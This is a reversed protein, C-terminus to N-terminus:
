VFCPTIGIMKMVQCKRDPNELEGLVFSSREKLSNDDNWTLNYFITGLHTFENQTSMPRFSGGTELVYEGDKVGVIYVNDSDDTRVVDGTIIGCGEKDLYPTVVGAFLVRHAYGLTDFDFGFTDEVASENHEDSYREDHDLVYLEGAWFFFQGLPKIHFHNGCIYRIQIDWDEMEGDTMKPYYKECLEKLLAEDFAQAMDTKEM